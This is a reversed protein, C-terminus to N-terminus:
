FGPKSQTDEVSLGQKRHLDTGGMGQRWTPGVAKRHSVWLRDNGNESLTRKHYGGGCGPLLEEGCVDLHHNKARPSHNTVPHHFMASSSDALSGLLRPSKVWGNVYWYSSDLGLSWAPNQLVRLLGWGWQRKLWAGKSRNQM